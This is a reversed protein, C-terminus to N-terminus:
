TEPLAAAQGDEGGPEPAQKTRNVDSESGQTGPASQKLRGKRLFYAWFAISFALLAIGFVLTPTREEAASAYGYGSELIQLLAFLGLAWIAM